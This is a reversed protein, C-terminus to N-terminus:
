HFFITNNDGLVIERVKARSAWKMEEERLLVRLRQKAEYKLIRENGDLLFTEAKRDFDDILKILREREDKYTGSLNKAWGRLYQRLHRIKNKWRDVNSTGGLERNWERSVM